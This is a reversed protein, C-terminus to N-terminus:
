KCQSLLILILFIIGYGLVKGLFESLGPSIITSKYPRYPAVYDHLVPHTPAQTMMQTILGTLRQLNERIFDSSPDLKQAEELDVKSAFLTSFVNAILDVGSRQKSMTNNVNQIARNALCTALSKKLVEPADLGAAELAQRLCAVATDWNEREAAQNAQSMLSVVQSPLEPEFASHTGAKLASLADRAIKLNEKARESGLATARELDKIGQEFTPLVQRVAAVAAPRGNKCALKVKEQAENCVTIARRTLLEALTEKLKPAQPVVALGLELLAIAEDRQNHQLTTARSHCHSILEMEVKERLEKPTSPAKIAIEWTEIAAEFQGVSARQQGQLLLARARLRAVENLAQEKASLNAIAMLAEEPKNKQILVSIPMYPSLMGQLKALQSNGPAKQLSEDVLKRIPDLLGVQRLMIAGARIRRQRTKAGYESVVKASDLESTLALELKRYQRAIAECTSLRQAQDLLRNRLNDQLKKKLGEAQSPLLGLGDKWLEPTELLMSWYAITKSWLLDLEPVPNAGAATAQQLTATLRQDLDLASHYWLVALSHAVDLDPFNAQFQQEWASATASRKASQLCSVDQLPNPTLQSLGESRYQMLRHWAREIPDHLANRASKAKNAPVRNALAKMFAKDIEDRSASSTIGLVEDPTLETQLPDKMFFPTRRRDHDWRAELETRTALIPV